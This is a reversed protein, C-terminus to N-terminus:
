TLRPMLLKGGISIVAPDNTFISGRTENFLFCIVSVGVMFIMNYLGIRWMTSEARQVLWDIGSTKGIFTAAENLLGPPIFKLYVRVPFHKWYM